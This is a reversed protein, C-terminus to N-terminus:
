PPFCPAMIFTLLMYCNIQSRESHLFLCLMSLFFPNKKLWSFVNLLKKKKKGIFTSAPFFFNTSKTLLFKHFFHFLSSCCYPSPRSSFFLFSAHFILSATASSNTSSILHWDCIQVPKIEWSGVTIIIRYECRFDFVCCASRPCKRLVLVYLNIWSSLCSGSKFRSWLDSQNM